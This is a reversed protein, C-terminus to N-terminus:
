LDEGPQRGRQRLILSSQKLQLAVRAPLAMAMTSTSGHYTSGHYTSGHYTSGHYTSGHYTLLYLM